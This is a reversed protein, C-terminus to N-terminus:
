HKLGNRLKEWISMPVALIFSGIDRFMRLPTLFLSKIFQWVRNNKKNRMNRWYREGEGDMVARSLDSVGGGGDFM